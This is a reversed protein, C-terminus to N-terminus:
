GERYLNQYFGAGAEMALFSARAINEATVLLGTELIVKLIVSRGFFSAEEDVAKRIAKIESYAKELDGALFSNLALVIDIEDAGNRVALVSELVKVECYSQSSPFCGAVATVHLKESVRCERVTATFNPYVCVSAPLPYGEFETLVGNAKGVLRRVSDDTDSSKLTTLDMISFCTKLTEVSSISDISAAIKELKRGIEEESPQYGYKELFDM